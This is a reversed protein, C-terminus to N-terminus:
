LGQARWAANAWIRERGEFRRCFEAIGTTAAEDIQSDYCWAMRRKKTVADEVDTLGAGGALVPELKGQVALTLSLVAAGIAEDVGEGVAEPLEEYFAVPITETGLASLAVDRATVHDVHGGLGLPLVWAGAKKAGAGAPDEVGGEGVCGGHAWIGRESWCSAAVSCGEFEFGHHHVEGGGGACAAGDAEAM